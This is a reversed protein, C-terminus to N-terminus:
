VSMVLVLVIDQVILLGIAIRGDLADVERKDSLLKEIIITGSFTLAVAM